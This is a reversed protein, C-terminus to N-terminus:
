NTNTKNLLHYHKRKKYRSDINLTLARLLFSVNWLMTPLDCHELGFKRIMNLFRWILFGFYSSLIKIYISKSFFLSIYIIIKIFSTLLM